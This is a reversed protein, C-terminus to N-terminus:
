KIVSALAGRFHENINSLSEILDGTQNQQQPVAKMITPHINSDMGSLEKIAHDKAAADMLRNVEFWKEHLSIFGFVDPSASVEMITVQKITNGDVIAAYEATIYTGERKFGFYKPDVYFDFNSKFVKM